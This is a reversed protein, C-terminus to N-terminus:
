NQEVLKASKLAKKVVKQRHAEPSAGTDSHRLAALYSRLGRVTGVYRILLRKM